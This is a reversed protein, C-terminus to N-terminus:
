WENIFFTIIPQHSHLMPVFQLDEVPISQAMVTVGAHVKPEHVTKNAELFNTIAALGVSFLPRGLVVAPDEETLLNEYVQKSLVMTATDDLKWLGTLTASAGWGIGVAEHAIKVGRM